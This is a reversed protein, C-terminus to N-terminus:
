RSWLRFEDFGRMLGWPSGVHDNRSLVTLLAPCRSVEFTMVMSTEAAREGGCVPSICDRRDGNKDRCWVGSSIRRAHPNRCFNGEVGDTMVFRPYLTHGDRREDSFEDWRACEEGGDHVNLFGRYDSGAGQICEFTSGSGDLESGIGGEFDSFLERTL